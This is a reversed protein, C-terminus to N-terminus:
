FYLEKVNQPQFAENFSRELDRLIEAKRLKIYRDLTRVQGPNPSTYIGLCALFRGHYHISILRAPLSLHARALEFELKLEQGPSLDFGNERLKYAMVGAGNLSFNELSAKFIRDDVRLSVHTAQGPQVREHRRDAWSREILSFEGLVLEGSEINVALVRAALVEECDPSHLYIPDGPNAALWNRGMQAVVRGPHLAVLLLDQTLVVGQVPHSMRLLAKRHALDALLSVPDVIDQFASMSM